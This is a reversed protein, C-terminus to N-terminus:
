IYRAVVRYTTDCGKAILSVHILCKQSLIVGPYGKLTAMLEHIIRYTGRM